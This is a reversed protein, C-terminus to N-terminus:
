GVSADPGHEWNKTSDPNSMSKTIHTNEKLKQTNNM